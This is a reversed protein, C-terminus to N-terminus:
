RWAFNPNDLFSLGTDANSEIMMVVDKQREGNFAFFVTNVPYTLTCRIYNGKMWYKQASRNSNRLAKVQSVPMSKSQQIGNKMIPESIDELYVQVTVQDTNFGNLTRQMTQKASEKARKQAKSISSSSVAARAAVYAVHEMRLSIMSYQITGILAVILFVMVPFGAIFGITEGMGSRLYKLLRNTRDSKKKTTLIM